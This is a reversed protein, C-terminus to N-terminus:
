LNNDHFFLMPSLKIGFNWAKLGIRLINKLTSKWPIEYRWAYVSIFRAAFIAHSQIQKANRSPSWLEFSEKCESDNGQSLCQYNM